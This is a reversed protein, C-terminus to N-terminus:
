KIKRGVLGKEFDHFFHRIVDLVDHLGSPFHRNGHYVLAFFGRGAPKETGSLDGYDHDIGTARDAHLGGSDVPVTTADAETSLRPM